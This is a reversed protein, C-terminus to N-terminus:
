ALIGLSCIILLYIYTAAFNGDVIIQSGHREIQSWKIYVDFLIMLLCMKAWRGWREINRSGPPTFLNTNFLLHRYVQPKHLVMEIFIIVFDFEM